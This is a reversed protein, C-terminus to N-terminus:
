GIQPVAGYVGSLYKSYFNEKRGVGEVDTLSYVETRGMRDKECLLIEEKTLDQLLTASHGSFWLQADNPNRESRGHFWEILHALMLPHLQADIEDIIAVSGTELAGSILPFIRIFAKTGHSELAWPLDVTLGDHKFLPVPGQPSQELRLNDLGIDIRRLNRNLSALLDPAQALYQVLKADQEPDAAFGLNTSVQNSAKILTQSPIHQFEALTAILSANPPLKDIIQAYGTLSFIKSDNPGKVLGGEREFVRRWKQASAPKQYLNERGVVFPGGSMRVFELEYRYVCSELDTPEVNQFDLQVYGGFEVALKIPLNLTGEDGFTDFSFGGAVNLPYYRPFRTLVDLAKLVTTKGSANAGFIAVVKPARRESHPYIEGLREDPDALSASASVDIVQRNKISCFNEIEIKYIM